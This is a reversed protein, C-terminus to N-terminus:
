IRTQRYAVLSLLKYSLEDSHENGLFGICFVVQELCHSVVQYLSIAKIILSFRAMTKYFYSVFELNSM